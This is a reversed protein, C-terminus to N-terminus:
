PLQWTFWQKPTKQHIVSFISSRIAQEFNDLDDSPGALVLEVTKTIGPPIVESQYGAVMYDGNKLAILLNLDGSRIDQGGTNTIDLKAYRDTEYSRKENDYSGRKSAFVNNFTVKGWNPIVFTTGIENIKAEASVVPSSNTIEGKKVRHQQGQPADYTIVYDSQLQPVWGELKLGKSFGPPSEPNALYSNPVKYSKSSSSTSVLPYNGEIKYKNNDKSLIYLNKLDPPNSLTTGMNRARGNVTVYKWGERYIKNPRDFYNTLQHDSEEWSQVEFQWNGIPFVGEKRMSTEPTPAFTRTPTSRPIPTPTAKAIVTPGSKEKINGSIPPIPDKPGAVVAKNPTNTLDNRIGGCAADTDCRAGDATRMKAGNKNLTGQYNKSSSDVKWGDFTLNRIDVSNGNADLVSFDLHLGTTYGDPPVECSPHAIVQNQRVTDGEKVEIAASHVYRTSQGDAHKLQVVSHNPDKQNKEDGAITVIGSKSAVINWDKLVIEKGPPCSVVPKPAFDLDSVLVGDIPAGIPIRFNHPGGTLFWTGEFPLKYQEELIAKELGSDKVQQNSNKEGCGTVGLSTAFLVPTAKKVLFNVSRKVFNESSGDPLLGRHQETM